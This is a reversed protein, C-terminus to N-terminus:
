SGALYHDKVQAATLAFSYAAAYALSGNFHPNPPTDYAGTLNDWGIRWYGSTAGAACVGVGLYCQASTVSPDSAVLAGDAYLAMGAASLTAVAHHWANDDYKTTSAIHQMLGNDVDFVLYGTASIYLQRDYGSPPLDLGTPHAGFGMLYGSTASKFWIEESFVQPSSAPPGTIYGSGGHLSIATTNDRPCVTSNAVTYTISGAQRYTGDAGSGSVDTAVNGHTEDFPYAFLAAAGPAAVASTCTFYNATSTAISGSNTITATLAGASSRLTVAFGALLVVVLLAIPPRRRV